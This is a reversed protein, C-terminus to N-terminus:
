TKGPPQSLLTKIGVIFLFHPQDQIPLSNSIFGKHLALIKFTQVRKTFTFQFVIWAGVYPSLSFAKRHTHTHPPPLPLSFCFFRKQSGSVWLKSNYYRCTIPVRLGLFEIFIATPLHHGQSVKCFCICFWKQPDYRWGQPLPNWYFKNFIFDCDLIIFCILFYVM